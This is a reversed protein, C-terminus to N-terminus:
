VDEDTKLSRQSLNSRCPHVYRQCHLLIRFCVFCKAPNELHIDKENVKILNSIQTDTSKVAHFLYSIKFNQVSIERKYYAPICISNGRSQMPHSVDQVLIEHYLYTVSLLRVSTNQEKFALKYKKHKFQELRRKIHFNSVLIDNMKGISTVIIQLYKSCQQPKISGYKTTEQM